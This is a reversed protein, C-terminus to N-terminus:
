DTTKTRREYEQNILLKVLDNASEFGGLLDIKYKEIHARVQYKKLHPEIHKRGAGKKNKDKMTM